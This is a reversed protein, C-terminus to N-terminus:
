TSIHPSIYVDIVCHMVGPAYSKLRNIHEVEVRRSRSGAECDACCPEREVLREIERRVEEAKEEIETVAFNEHIHIWGGMARDLVRVATRWSGRSTPLLGCNVHRVPPVSTTVDDLRAAATANDENFVLLRDDGKLAAVLSQGDTVLRAPWKNAAAGRILGETSWPNLDWCLLKSFGAKLYSFTFYGIGAYLDVAACGRGDAKGDEVASVVSPLTLLRAKESINGRSFMTWRPAWIQYIGNQKATVWFAADFDEQTPPDNCVSPGFNGYLPTFSRPARLVNDVGRADDQPPIPRTVALHMAKLHQAILSYLRQLDADITSSSQFGERDLEDLASSPLLVMSGYVVYSKRLKQVFTALYDPKEELSCIWATTAREM